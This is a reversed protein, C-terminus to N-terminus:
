FFSFRILTFYWPLPLTNPLFFSFTEEVFSSLSRLSNSFFVQFVHFLTLSPLSDFFTAFIFYVASKVGATILPSRLAGLCFVLGFLWPPVEGAPAAFSIKPTSCFLFPLLFLRPAGCGMIAM